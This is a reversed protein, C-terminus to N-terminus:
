YLPQAHGASPCDDAISCGPCAPDRRRCVDQGHRRLLQYARQLAPVTVPLRESARAQAQRYGVAYSRAPEGHGLRTLVRLANADLALVARTGSFLEIRDAGPAGIGPYARWPAGAIALEACRRLRQVREPPRAGAGIPLLVEDSAALIQEPALGVVRRLEALARQRRQDDVLYAVNEALVLEWGDASPLPAPPGGAEELRDLLAPLDRM